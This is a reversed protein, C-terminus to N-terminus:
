SKKKRESPVIKLSLSTLGKRTPLSPRGLTAMRRVDVRELRRVMTPVSEWDRPRQDKPPLGAASGSLLSSSTSLGESVLM